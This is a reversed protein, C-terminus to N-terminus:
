TILVYCLRALQLVPETYLNTVGAGLQLYSTALETLGDICTAAEQSDEAEDFCDALGGGGWREVFATGM